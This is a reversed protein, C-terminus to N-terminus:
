PAESACNNHHCICMTIDYCKEEAGLGIVEASLLPRNTERYTTMVSFAIGGV